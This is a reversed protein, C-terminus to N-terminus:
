ALNGESRLAVATWVGGLFDIAGFLILIPKAFGLIAFVILAILFVTRGYVTARFFPTLGNQGAQIDDFGLIGVVVGLIRIWAETTPPLGFVGLLANPAVVLIISLLILYIGFIVVSKASHKM